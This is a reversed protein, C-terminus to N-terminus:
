EPAIIRRDGAWFAAQPAHLHAPERHAPRAACQGARTSTPKLQLMTTCYGLFRACRAKLQISRAGIDLSGSVARDNTQGHGGVVTCGCGTAADPMTKSATLLLGEECCSPPKQSSGLLIDDSASSAKCRACQAALMPAVSFVFCCLPPRQVTKEIGGGVLAPSWAAHLACQCRWIHRHFLLTGDVCGM